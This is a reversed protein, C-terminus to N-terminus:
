KKYIYVYKEGYKKSKILKLNDYNEKLIDKSFELVIIGERNLLDLGIIDVKVDLEKKLEELREIRRAVLILDVKMRALYRAMDRGIGSSAGTILALM